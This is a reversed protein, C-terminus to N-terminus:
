TIKERMIKSFEVTNEIKEKVRQDQNKKNHKCFSNKVEQDSLRRMLADTWNLVTYQRRESNKLPVSYDTFHIHENKMFKLFDHAKIDTTLFHDICANDIICGSWNQINELKYANVIGKGILISSKTNINSQFYDLDSVIDDLTLEAISGHVISGRLPIGTEIANRLVMSTFGSIMIFDFLTDNKTWLIISDSVIVLSPKELKYNALEEKYLQFFSKGLTGRFVQKFLNTITNSDNNNILDSFGLIDLFAIYSNSAM